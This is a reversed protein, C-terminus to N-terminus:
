ADYHAVLIQPIRVFDRDLTILEAGHEMASAAIWLDNAPLPRRAARLSGYIRAYREATAEGVPVLRVRPSELFLRLDARNRQARAGVEFGGLLEGLAVSSVLIERARRLHAVVEAHGRKFGSYASTDLAVRTL